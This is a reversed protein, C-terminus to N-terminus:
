AKSRDSRPLEPWSTAIWSVVFNAAIASAYPKWNDRSGTGSTPASRRPVLRDLGLTRAIPSARWGSAGSPMDSIGRVMLFGIGKGEDHAQEVAMCAGAGEMEIAQSDPRERLIAQVYPPDIDDIVKEGSAFLGTVMKPEHGEKPPRVKCRKWTSSAIKFARASNLLGGDVRFTYVHRPRVEGDVIKAHEYHWVQQSVVIDGQRLGEKPLGGASGSLLVYRPQWRGITQKTTSFTRINGSSGALAVVVHYVGTGDTKPITGTIWGYLNPYQGGDPPVTAWDSLLNRVAEYEEELVTVIAVDVADSPPTPPARLTRVAQMSASDAETAALPAAGGTAASAVDPATIAFTREGRHLRALAQAVDASTQARPSLAALLNAAGFSDGIQERASAENRLLHDLSDGSLLPKAKTAVDIAKGWERTQLHVATLNILAVSNSADVEIVKRLAAEAEGLKGTEMLALARMNEVFRAQPSLVIANREPEFALLEPWLKQQALAGALLSRALAEFPNGAGKPVRDGVIELARRAFRASDRPMEALQLINALELAHGLAVGHKDALLANLQTRLQARIEAALAHSPGLGAAVTGLIHPESVGRLFETFWPPRGALRGFLRGIELFLPEGVPLGGYVTVRALRMWSFAGVPLAAKRDADYLELAARLPEEFDEVASALAVLTGAHGRLIDPVQFAPNASSGSTDALALDLYKAPNFPRLLRQWSGTDARLADYLEALLTGYACLVSSFFRFGSGLELNATYYGVIATALRTALAAQGSRRLAGVLRLAFVIAADSYEGPAQFYQELAAVVHPTREASSVAEAWLAEGEYQAKDRDIAAVGYHRRRIAESEDEMGLTVLSLWDTTQDGLLMLERGLRQAALWEEKLDLRKGRPGFVVVQQLQGLAYACEAHFAPHFAYTAILEPRDLGATDLAALVASCPELKSLANGLTIDDALLAFAWAVHDYYGDGVHHRAHEFFRDAQLLAALRSVPLGPSSADAPAPTEQGPAFLLLRADAEPTLADAASELEHRLLEALEGAPTAPLALLFRYDLKLALAIRWLRNLAAPTTAMLAERVLDSLSDTCNPRAWWALLEDGHTEVQEFRKQLVLRPDGGAVSAPVVLSWGLGYQGLGQLQSRPAVRDGIILLAKDRELEELRFGQLRAYTRLGEAHLRPPVPRAVRLIEVWLALEEPTLRTGNPPTAPQARYDLRPFRWADLVSELRRARANSDTAGGDNPGIIKM